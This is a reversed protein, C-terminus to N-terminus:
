EDKSENWPHEEDSVPQLLEPRRLARRPEKV